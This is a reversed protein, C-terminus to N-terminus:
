KRWTPKKRRAKPHHIVRAEEAVQDLIAGPIKDILEVMMAKAAIPAAAPKEEDIESKKQRKPLTKPDIEYKVPQGPEIRPETCAGLATIHFFIDPGRDPRIFGFKKQPDWRVITGYRM